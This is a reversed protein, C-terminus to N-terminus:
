TKPIQGVHISYNILHTVVSPIEVSCKKFLWSPLGDWGSSTSKVHRLIREIQYESVEVDCKAAASYYIDSNPQKGTSIKAFFENLCDASLHKSTHSDHRRHKSKLILMLGYNELLSLSLTVLHSPSSVRFLLISKILSLM